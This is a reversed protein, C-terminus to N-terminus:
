APVLLDAAADVPPLERMAAAISRAAAAYAPEGLLSRVADGLGGADVPDRVTRDATTLAIGAGVRAVAEANVIQDGSFLPAVVLPVGHALAGMTTGHGGHSVVGAAYPLVADQPAWREVRVNAPLPGLESLDRDEGITLLVRADVTALEDIAARYFAPFFALHPAATVTGFTAYVLPRDDDPWWEPQSAAGHAFRFTTPQPAVAPDELEEPVTCLYPAERSAGTLRVTEEELSSLGLGVRALPIGQERAVVGGALEWSERVILDPRFGAAVARVGPLTAEVDIRGFFEAVMVDHAQRVTLDEFEALLPMWREPPPSDVPAVALGLREVNGALARQATVLVDHGARMLAHAFPALPGVHGSSGRTTFLVRV